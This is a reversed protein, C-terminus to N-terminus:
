PQTRLAYAALLARIAHANDRRWGACWTSGEDESRLAWGAGNVRDRWLFARPNPGTTVTGWVVHEGRTHVVTIRDGRAPASM